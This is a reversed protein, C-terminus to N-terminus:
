RQSSVYRDNSYVSDAIKALLGAAMDTSQLPVQNVYDCDDSGDVWTATGAATEGGIWCGHQRDPIEGPQERGGHPITIMVDM